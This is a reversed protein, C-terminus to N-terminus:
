GVLTKYQYITNKAVNTWDYEKACELSGESMKGYYQLGEVAFRFLSIIGQVSTDSVFGNGYKEIDAGANTTVTALIPIGYSYAEIIGMPLGELRSTHIFYDAGELVKRKDDGFVGDHFRVIDSIEANKVYTQLWEIDSNKYVGYLLININNKRLFVADKRCSKILLDLGKHYKDYRGIYVINLGKGHKHNKRQIGKQLKIGNKAIISNRYFWRPSNKREMESLFQVANAGRAYRIAFLMNFILKRGFHKKQVGYTLSGHPVVVYPINMTSIKRWCKIIRPLYIGHFVVLDVKKEALKEVLGNQLYDDYDYSQIDEVSVRYKELNLIEVHVYRSQEIVHRPIVADMGNGLVGKICCIHFIFFDEM